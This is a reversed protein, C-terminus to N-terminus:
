DNKFDIEYDFGKTKIKNLWQSYLRKGIVLKGNRQTITEGMIFHQLDRRFIEQVDDLYVDKKESLKRLAEIRMPIIALDPM